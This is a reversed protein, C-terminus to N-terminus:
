CGVRCSSVPSESLGWCSLSSLLWEEVMTRYVPTDLAQTSGVKKIKDECM